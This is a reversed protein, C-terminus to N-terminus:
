KPLGLHERIEDAKAKNKVINGGIADIVTKWAVPSSQTTIWSHIVERLRVTDGQINRRFGELTNHSINLATGIEFWKSDISVLQNLLDNEDPRTSM